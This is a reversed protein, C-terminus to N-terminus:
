IQSEKIKVVTWVDSRKKVQWYALKQVSDIVNGEEDFTTKTYDVWVYGSGFSFDASLLNFNAEIKSIQAQNEEKEDEDPDIDDDPKYVYKELKGANEPVNGSLDTMISHAFDIIGQATAQDSKSFRHEISSYYPLFGYKYKEYKNYNDGHGTFITFILMVALITALLTLTLKYRM